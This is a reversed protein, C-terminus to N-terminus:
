ATCPSELKSNTSSDRLHLWEISAVSFYATQKNSQFYLITIATTKKTHLNSVKVRESGSDSISVNLTTQVKSDTPSIRHHSWEFSVEEATSEYPVIQKTPNLFTFNLIKRSIISQASSPTVPYLPNIAQTVLM